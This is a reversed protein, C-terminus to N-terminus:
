ARQEWLEAEQMESNVMEIHLEDNISFVSVPKVTSEHPSPPLVYFKTINNPPSLLM